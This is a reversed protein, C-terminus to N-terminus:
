YVLQRQIDLWGKKLVIKEKIKMVNALYRLEQVPRFLGKPELFTFSEYNRSMQCM